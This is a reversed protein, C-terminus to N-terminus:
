EASDLALGQGIFADDFREDPDLRGNDNLDVHLTSRQALRARIAAYLLPYRNVDIPIMRVGQLTETDSQDLETPALWRRPRFAWLWRHERAPPWTVDALPRLRLTGPMDAFLLFLAGDSRLGRFFMSQGAFSSSDSAPALPADIGCIGSPPISVEPVEPAVRNRILDVIFPGPAVVDADASDCALFRLEGLSLFARQLSSEDLREGADTANPEVQPDSTLELRAV